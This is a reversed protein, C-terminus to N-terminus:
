RSVATAATPQSSARADGRLAAELTDFALLACAQRSPYRRLEAFAVLEGLADDAPAEGAGLWTAFRDRLARVHALDRDIVLDGLMSASAIAIACAEGTFRLDAIRCDDVRLACHLHDGCLANEGDARHTADALAGFRRPARNHALVTDRYLDQVAM